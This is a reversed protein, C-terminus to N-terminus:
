VMTFVNEISERIRRPCLGCGRGKKYLLVGSRLRMRPSLVAAFAFYQKIQVKENIRDLFLRHCFVCDIDGAYSLRKKGGNTIRYEINVPVCHRWGAFRDGM